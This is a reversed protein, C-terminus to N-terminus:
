SSLNQGTGTWQEKFSVDLGLDRLASKAEFECNKHQSIIKEIISEINHALFESALERNRSVINRVATCAHKQLIFLFTNYYVFCYNNNLIFM